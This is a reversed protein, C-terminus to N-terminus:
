AEPEPSYEVTIEVPTNSISVDKDANILDALKAEFEAKVDNAKVNGKRMESDTKYVKYDLVNGSADKVVVIAQATITTKGTKANYIANVSYKVDANGTVEGDESSITATADDSAVTEMESEFVLRNVSVEKLRNVLDLPSLGDIGTAITATITSTYASGSKSVGSILISVEGNNKNYECHDVSTITGGLSPSILYKTVGEYNNLDEQTFEINTVPNSLEDNQEKQFASYADAAKLACDSASTAMEAITKTSNNINNMISIVSNYDGSTYAQEVQTVLNRFNEFEANAKSQYDQASALADSIITLTNGDAGENQAKTLYGQTATVTQRILEISTAVTTQFEPLQAYLGQATQQIKELEGQAENIINEAENLLEQFQRTIADTKETVTATLNAIDTANQRVDENLEGVKAYNGNDYEVKMQAQSASMSELTSNATSLATQAEELNKQMEESASLRVEMTLASLTAGDDGVLRGEVQAVLGDATTVQTNAGNVAKEANELATASDDLQDTATAVIQADAGEAERKARAEASGYFHGLTLGGVLVIAAAVALVVKIAKKITGKGKNQGSSNAPAQSGGIDQTEEPTPANSGGYLGGQEEVPETVGQGDQVPQATTGENAPQAQAGSQGAQATPEAQTQQAPTTQATQATVGPQTQPVDQPQQVVGEADTASSNEAGNARNLRSLIETINRRSGM